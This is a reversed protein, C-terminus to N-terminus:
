SASRHPQGNTGSHDYTGFTPRTASTGKKVDRRQETFVTVLDDDGLFRSECIVCSSEFCAWDSNEMIKELLFRVDNVTRGADKESDIKRRSIIAISSM